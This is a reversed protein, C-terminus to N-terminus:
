DWDHKRRMCPTKDRWLLTYRTSRSSIMSKRTSQNRRFSVRESISRPLDITLYERTQAHQDVQSESYPNRRVVGSKGLPAHAPARGGPGPSHLRHVLPDVAWGRALVCDFGTSKTSEMNTRYLFTSKIVEKSIVPSYFSDISAIYCIVHTTLGIRSTRM